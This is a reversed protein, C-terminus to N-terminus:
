WVVTPDVGDAPWPRAALGAAVAAHTAVALRAGWTSRVGAFPIPVSSAQPCLVVLADSATGTGPVGSGILAQAKAETVTGVAQILASPSLPVPLAAVVNITGPPPVLPAANAADPRAPWTPKTVGVTAWIDVGDAEAHQVQTVDAATLLASGPGGLGLDQAVEGAYAALDTRAFGDAVGINLVWRPDLLGGGVSASSVARYGSPLRWVLATGWAGTETTLPIPHSM